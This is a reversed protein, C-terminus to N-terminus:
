PLNSFFLRLCDRMHFVLKREPHGCVGAVRVQMNDVGGKGIVALSGGLGARDIGVARQGIRQCKRARDKHLGLRKRPVVGTQEIGDLAEAAVVAAADSHHVVGYAIFCEFRQVGATHAAQTEAYPVRAVGDDGKVVACRQALADLM